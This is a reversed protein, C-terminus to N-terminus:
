SGGAFDRALRSAVDHMLKSELGRNFPSEVGGFAFVVDGRGVRM